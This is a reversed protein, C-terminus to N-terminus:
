SPALNLRTSSYHGCLRSSPWSLAQTAGLHSGGKGGKVKQINKVEKTAESGLEFVSAVEVEKTM